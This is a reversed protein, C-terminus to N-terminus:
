PLAKQFSPLALVRDIYQSLLPWQKEDIAIGAMKLSVFHNAVAIDAITLANGVLMGTREEALAQELYDLIPPLQRDVAQQVKVGDTAAQLLLPKIVKEVFIKEHIVDSMVTDAYKEFWLAKAYAGLAKPYLNVEPYKKELYAAIVASDAVAVAGDQLAPIKGLPSAKSFGEPIPKDLATLLSVPLVENLQYTVKKEELLVIVKRVYPSEKVGWVIPVQQQLGSSFCPLSCFLFLSLLSKVIHSM